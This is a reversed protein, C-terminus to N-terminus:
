KKNSPWTYEEKVNEATMDDDILCNHTLINLALNRRQNKTPPVPNCFEPLCMSRFPCKQCREPSLCDGDLEVIKQLVDEDSKNLAM